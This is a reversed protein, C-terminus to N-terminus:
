FFPIIGGVEHVVEAPDHPVIVQAPSLHPHQTTQDAVVTGVGPVSPVPLLLDPGGGANPETVIGPLITLNQAQEQMTQLLLTEDGAQGRLPALSAPALDM